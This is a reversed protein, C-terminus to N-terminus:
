KKVARTLVYDMKVIGGAWFPACAQVFDRRLGDVKAQDAGLSQVAKMTPGYKTSFLRWFHGVSVAPFDVAGEEFRLDRVKEGLRERVVNVDGWLFPSPPPSVPPALHRGMAAFFSNAVNGKRHTVFGLRGGPKLVRLMESITVDPRPAFMHGFSSVVVDFHADPYPLNEADGERWAIGDLDAAGAEGKAVELLEPTIDLGTVKAGTRRAAIATVGTGTAVDLVSDGEQIHNAAVLRHAAPPLFAAIDNYSGTAWAAKANTKLQLIADM